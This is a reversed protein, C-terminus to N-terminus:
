IIGEVGLGFLAFDYKVPDNKDFVKLKNTLEEAMKWNPKVQNILGLHRAVREVHVDCPCILQSTSIGNWIGFDIGKDDKRVMWRLFMNIRKCASNSVPSAIHKKTREPFYELSFFLEKFSDLANKINLDTRSLKNTFAKELGGHKHYIFQLVEMFYLADTGNFTRHKFGEFPILDKSEFNMIFEHPANDMFSLLENAKNIITKRQGWSLIAALFGSIEVDEKKSFKHPISIPDNIIFEQKNYYEFKDNLIQALQEFSYSPM